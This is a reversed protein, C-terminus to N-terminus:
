VRVDGLAGNAELSDGQQDGLICHFGNLSAREKEKRRQINLFIVEPHFWDISM